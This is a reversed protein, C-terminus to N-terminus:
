KKWFQNKVNQDMLTRDLVLTIKVGPVFQGKGIKTISSFNNKSNAIWNPMYGVAKAFNIYDTDRITLCGDSMSAEISRGSHINMRFGNSAIGQLSKVKQAKNERNIIENYPTMGPYNRHNGSVFNSVNERESDLTRVKRSSGYININKNPNDPLTSGNTTIHTIAKNKVVIYMAGYRGENHYNTKSWKNNYDGAGEFAFIITKGDNFDKKVRNNNEIYENMKVIAQIQKNNPNKVGNDILPKVINNHKETEQIKKNDSDSLTHSTWKQQSTNIDVTHEITAELVSDHAWHTKPLDKYIQPIDELSKKDVERNQIRNLIVVMEARTLTRDGNFNGKNDVSMFSHDMVKDVSSRESSDDLILYEDVMIAIDERSIKGKLDNKRYGDLNVDRKELEEIVIDIPYSKPKNGTELIEISRLFSIYAEERSIAQNPNFNAAGTGFIYPIRNSPVDKKYRSEKIEDEEILEEENESELDIEEINEETDEQNEEKSLEEEIENIEEEEIVMDAEVVQDLNLNKEIQDAFSTGTLSISILFTLMLSIFRLLLSERKEM